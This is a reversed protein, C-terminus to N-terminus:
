WTEWSERAVMDVVVGHMEEERSRAKCRSDMVWVM